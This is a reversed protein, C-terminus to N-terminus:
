PNDRYDCVGGESEDETFNKREVRHGFGIMRCIKKCYVFGNM